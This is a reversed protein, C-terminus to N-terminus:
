SGDKEIEIRAALIASAVYHPRDAIADADDGIV